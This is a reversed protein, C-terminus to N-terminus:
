QVAGVPEKAEAFTPVTFRVITGYPSRPSAGLRGGHADIISRCISLGMGLGNPKTTFFPDFIREAFAADLGPGADEVTVAVGAPEALATRIVLTKAHEPVATMAEIGNMILNLLVQQLQVRDGFASPLDALLDTHVSVDHRQVEGRVLELVERIADNIDLTGRRLESRGLLSRLGRIVEDARQAERVIRSAADRAEELQPKERNLWRLAASGSMVIAALPQRLEHAISAALEGMTTRSAVRTLEAQAHGLATEAERRATIDTSAILRGIPQGHEDRQISWRSAVIVQTGDRRRQVLEGDWRGTRLLKAKIQEVPEPFVTMFLGAAIKGIVEEKRWGYMEEAGHNWYTIVDNMDRVVITDHTLELLNAHERLRAESQRLSDQAEIRASVEECAILIVPHDRARRVARATERVWLITGDKRIKRIEWSMSQGIHALCSVVHGRAAERDAEQFVSLVSQGVLEGVTYGLQEAGFPNVSVITGAPDIMFYMTPNNEFVDRWRQESRRLATMLGTIVSATLSYAFIAVLDLAGSVAFPFLPPAFFYALCAVGGITVLLAAALGGWLSV